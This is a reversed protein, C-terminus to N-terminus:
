SNKVAKIFRYKLAEDQTLKFEENLCITGEKVGWSDLGKDSCFMDWVEVGKDIIARVSVVINM